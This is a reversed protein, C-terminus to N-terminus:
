FGSLDSLKCVRTESDVIVIGGGMQTDQDVPDIPETIPLDVTAAIDLDKYARSVQSQFQEGLVIGPLRNAMGEIILVCTATKLEPPVAYATASLRIRSKLRARVYNARDHMINTFPDAQATPTTRLAVARLATMEDSVLYDDLHATTIVIWAASM